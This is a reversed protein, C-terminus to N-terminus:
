YIHFFQRFKQALEWAGSFGIGAAWLEVLLVFDSLDQHVKELEMEFTSREFDIYFGNQLPYIGGDSWVRILDGVREVWPDPTHGLWPSEGTVLFSEWDQWSELGCCCSPSIVKSKEGNIAQLGGPLVMSQSEIIQHLVDNVSGELELGGYNILRALILGVELSTMDGHLSMFSSPEYDVIEWPCLLKVQHRPLQVVANLCSNASM